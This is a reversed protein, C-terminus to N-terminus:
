EFWLSAFLRYLCIFSLFLLYSFRLLISFLFFSASFLFSFSSISLIPFSSLTLLISSSSSPPDPLTQVVDFSVIVVVIVALTAVAPTKKVLDPYKLDRQPIQTNEDLNLLIHTIAVFRDQYSVAVVIAHTGSGDDPAKYFSLGLSLAAAILLVILTVDQLAEWVLRLFSKPPKPPIENRGFVEVRRRLDAETDSLGAINL